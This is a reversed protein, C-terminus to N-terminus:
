KRSVDIIGKTLQAATSAAKQCADQLRWTSLDREEVYNSICRLETCPLNFERCVRAVAAGEMNECIGNWRAQLMKGRAATGTAGNVTIFTGAHHNIGFRYLVARSKELLSIDMPYLIEGTLSSDLYMVSDNLCVGFDGLIEQEALCIDLLVPQQLLNEDPLIYAGGVGFHIVADFQQECECLFRTLRLTTEVPGVGTVLTRCFDPAMLEAAFPTMEIETAAIALIM